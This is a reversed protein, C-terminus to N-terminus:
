SGAPQHNGNSQDKRIPTEDLSLLAEDLVGAAFEMGENRILTKVAFSFLTKLIEVRYLEHDEQLASCIKIARLNAGEIVLTLERVLLTKFEM